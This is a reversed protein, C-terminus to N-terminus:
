RQSRRKVLMGDRWLIAFRTCVQNAERQERSTRRALRSAAFLAMRTM